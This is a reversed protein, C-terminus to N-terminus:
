MNNSCYDEGVSLNSWREWAIFTSANMFQVEFADKPKTGATFVIVSASSSSSWVGQWLDDAFVRGDSLFTWPTSHFGPVVGGAFDSVCWKTDSVFSKSVQEGAFAGVGFVACLGFAALSALRNFNLPLM